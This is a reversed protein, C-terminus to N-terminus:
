GAVDFKAAMAAFNVGGGVYSTSMMGGIKDLFTIKDKLLFISIMTGTVTGISRIFIFFVFRCCELCIMKFNVHFLLLPIALPIIFEWIADYVPSEVPIVGTNSLIIAGVLALIAGSVKAAWQFRQELYISAAAWVVIIGWLTIYDDPK